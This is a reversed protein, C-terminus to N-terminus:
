EPPPPSRPPKVLPINFQPPCRKKLISKGLTSHTSPLDEIKSTKVLGVRNSHESQSSTLAFGANFGSNHGEAGLESVLKTRANEATVGHDGRETATEVVFSVVADGASPM